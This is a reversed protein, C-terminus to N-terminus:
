RAERNYHGLVEAQHARSSRNFEIPVFSDVSSFSPTFDSRPNPSTQAENAKGHLM